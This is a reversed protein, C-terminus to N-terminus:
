GRRNPAKKCKIYIGRRKGQTQLNIYDVDLGYYVMYDIVQGLTKREAYVKDFNHEWIIKYM